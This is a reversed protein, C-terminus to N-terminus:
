EPEKPQKFPPVTDRVEPDGPLEMHSRYRVTGEIFAGCQIQFGRGEIRWSATKDAVNEGTPTRQFEAPRSLKWRLIDDSLDLPIEGADNREVSRKASVPNNM